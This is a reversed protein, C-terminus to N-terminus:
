MVRKECLEGSVNEGLVNLKSFSNRKITIKILSLNHTQNKMVNDHWPM